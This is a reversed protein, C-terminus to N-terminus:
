RNFPWVSVRSTDMRVSSGEGLKEANRVRTEHCSITVGSIGALPALDVENCRLLDIHLSSNRPKLGSLSLLQIEIFTVHQLGPLSSLSEMNILNKCGRLTLTVIGTQRVIGTLNVLAQAELDMGTVTQLTPLRSLDKYPYRSLALSELAPCAALSSLDLSASVPSLSLRKLQAFGAISSIDVVEGDGLQITLSEISRLHALARLHGNNTILLTRTKSAALVTQVYDDADFYQWARSLEADTDAESVELHVIVDRILNMAATGGILSAARIIEPAKERGTSGSWYSVLLPILLEGAASLQEAQEMSRPPLLDPILMEVDRRLGPDLSRIEQLCAVALVRRGYRQQGRWNRRLLGRLLRAAQTHNAQGAALVVVEGWQDNDANRVLEGIADGDIAAKAALFEQFTRHVFDVRGEAPLRLLGSRELLFRFVASVQYDANPLGALSRGIQAVAANLDVESEGNRIMWLALDALLHTKATLDLRVQPPLISRAQDRQDFMALAREYIESRRRPLGSRLYRNLACLLGALLPTDALDRLYRDRTIDALLSREYGDLQEREDTGALQQRAAEHWNRVFTQALSPPMAELSSHAFGTDTLWDAAVAAPRATVVYVANPFRETLDSLWEAVRGREDSPLEDVGDILVLARGSDLQARIWGRPAEDVLLRATGALFEEPKPPMTGVYDRLRIFFPFHENLHVLAGTFSSRAAGVALWQLVTTKGSGARGVLMTRASAALRDEVAQEGADVQQETRLSVYAISLPYWRSEFDLGFLELRDLRTAIHRRCATVFRAEQSDGDVRDPIRDLVEDIRELIQRDRRLLETFAAAQFHPLKDAIEIVYACGEVILRDYLATGDGTLDRTARIRDSQVLRELFLPNLDHTFLVKATLRARDFSEGAGIVAANWENEPLGGFETERFARFRRAVPVELDEFFRRVRRQDLDGSIRSAVLDTVSASMDAAFSEDKLWIKAGAKVVAAALAIFVDAVSCNLCLATVSVSPCLRIRVMATGQAPLSNSSVTLASGDVAASQGARPSHRRGRSVAHGKVGSAPFSIVSVATLGESPSAM